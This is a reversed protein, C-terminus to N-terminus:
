LIVEIREGGASCIEVLEWRGYRKKIRRFEAFLEEMAEPPIHDLADSAYNRGVTNALWVTARSFVLATPFLLTLNHQNTCIRVRM